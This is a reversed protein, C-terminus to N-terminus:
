ALSPGAVLEPIYAFELRRMMRQSEAFGRTYVEQASEYGAYTVMAKYVLLMHYQDPLGTPVDTADVLEVPARYFDGEVTFGPAPTPGLSLSKDPKVAVHQPRAQDTRQLGFKYFDRFDRFDMPYLLTEDAYGTATTRIRFSDEVWGTAGAAGAQTPTYDQQGAVVPFACTSRMWEWDPKHMQVDTFAQAIWLKFRLTEASANAFTTLDGGSVGCERRARNVLQLLNM